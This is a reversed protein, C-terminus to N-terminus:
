ETNFVYDEGATTSFDYLNTSPLTIGKFEAKKSILPKKIGPLQFFLNPNEGKAIKLNVNGEPLLNETVRIRCNGGLGSQIKLKILKGDKWDIDVQFGGRAMLGKVSGEKWKDPLAPLIYIFGDHSQLLMEAIGATCGFNGDIQFPPHADFLNPYTGGGEGAAAATPAPSLQDSILKYAHNGDLLRAWLNVKWGMSWGTSLDGRYVLSNRAAEFLEPTRYPSIQFGPYLGYLHSVHRHHDNPDDWDHLWEQLQTYQGIQMPPLSDRKSNLTDIFNKDVNLIKAANITNSFLEFVIQNDMTTGASTSVSIGDKSLYSHEPSNSPCVVLWHNEPEIQLQNVFFESAGKLVPYINKLFTKDGTFLYHEWLHRTLWAGGTQWLGYFALDVEGSIRWIDTNHHAMWGPAGYMESASERGTASLDKIMNFLPEGLESLNTVESPWYNMETNINITYKSDWPPSIQDNWIGQLNAPQTGPQSSSILLYRGFQFYLAVLQPDDTKNFKKIRVDTPNKAADSKGLDLKVRDFYKKYFAEHSSLAKKYPIMIAKTLYGNAKDHASGNINHYNIFNTGMSIYVTASNANQITISSDNTEIRGGDIKPKVIAEFKVKGKQGEHDSSIGNLKMEDKGASLSHTLPSNMSLTCNIKGPQDATLRIIIVQDTFSSFIERKFNVGKVNYSVSAVANEINLDRYYNSYVEHGPFKIILNGVPQYKMGNNKSKIKEDALKQAEVYKGEFILKRVQVIYPKVAPDVNNNPGGSWVTEENLKLTDNAPDGYIMAAIRGNGVPLAEVWKDAPQNYWLKM